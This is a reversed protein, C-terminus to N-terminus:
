TLCAGAPEKPQLQAGAVAVPEDKSSLNGKKSPDIKHTCAKRQKEELAGLGSKNHLLGSWVVSGLAGGVGLPAGM